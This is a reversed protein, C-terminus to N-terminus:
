VRLGLDAVVAVHDSPFTSSPIAVEAGMAEDSPNKLTRQCVLGESHFVYDLRAKFPPTYNTFVKEDWHRCADTLKPASLAFRFDAESELEDVVQMLSALDVGEKLREKNYLACDNWDTHTSPATGTSLLQYVAGDPMSNLDGCLIVEAEPFRDRKLAEITALLMAVQILRIHKAYPHWFLHTNAVLIDKQTNSNSGFNTRLHLIIGKMVLRNFAKQNLKSSNIKARIEGWPASSPIALSQVLEDSFFEATLPVCFKEHCTFKERSWLIACGDDLAYRSKQGEKFETRAKSEFYGEHGFCQFIPLLYESFISRGVEQLAIIDANYHVIEQAIRLQRTSIDLNGEAVYPYLKERAAETSAYQDHLINYSVVRFPYASPDSSHKDFCPDEPSISSADLLKEQMRTPRTNEVLSPAEVTLTKGVSDTCDIQLRKGTLNRPPIFAMTRNVIEGNDISDMKGSDADVARWQWQIQSNPCQLSRSKPIRPIAPCGAIVTEPATLQLVRCPDRRIRIQDGSVCLINGNQFADITSTSPEVESNESTLIHMKVADVARKAAKGKKKPAMVAINREPLSQSNTATNAFAPSQALKLGIRKLTTDVRENKERTFQFVQDEFGIEIEIKKMQSLCPANDGSETIGSAYVFNPM